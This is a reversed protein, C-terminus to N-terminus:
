VNVPIYAQPFYNVEVKEGEFIVSFVDFFVEMQGFHSMKEESHLYRKAATVIRRQKLYGVNEEPAAPAPAVRSKVEVFHLGAPDVTVIDIELHGSRWNRDVVTHGRGLLYECAIDEGRRGLRM